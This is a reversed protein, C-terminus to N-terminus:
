ETFFERRDMNGSDAFRALRPDSDRDRVVGKPFIRHVDDTDREGSEGESKSEAENATFLLGGFGGSRFGSRGSFGRGSGGSRGLLGLSTM